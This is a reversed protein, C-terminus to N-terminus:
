KIATQMNILIAHMKFKEVPRGLFTDIFFKYISWGPSCGETVPGRFAKGGGNKLGGLFKTHGEYRFKGMGGGIKLHEGTNNKTAGM